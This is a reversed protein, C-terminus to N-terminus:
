PTTESETAILECAGSGTRALLKGAQILAHLPGIARFVGVQLLRCDPAARYQVIYIKM